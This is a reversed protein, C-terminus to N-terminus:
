SMGALAARLDAETIRGECVDRGGVRVVPIRLTYRRSLGPDADIDVVEVTLPQEAALRHLAAHVDECLHCGERSLLEIEVPPV